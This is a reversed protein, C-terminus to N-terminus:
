KLHRIQTDIFSLDEPRSLRHDGDEIYHIITSPTKFAKKIQEAKEWPVELDQRGQVLVFPIDVIHMKNLLRCKEGDELLAKTFIYPEVGEEGPVEFYGKEELARNQAQSMHAKLEQTFDPAAAIGVFGALRGPRELATLLGIWGGMSSGVLIVPGKIVEDLIDLVDDLWVSITGDKFDGGSRGHGSYDMRVFAQGRTRCEAEFYTAKTGAMDSAYGGLFFVTPWNKGQTGSPSFHYAIAPNRGRSLFQEPMDKGKSRARM